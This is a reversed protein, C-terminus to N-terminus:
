QNRRSSLSNGSLNKLVERFAGNAADVAGRETKPDDTSFCDVVDGRANLANEINRMPVRGSALVVADTPLRVTVGDHIITAGTVRPFGHVSELSANWYTYTGPFPTSGIGSRLSVVRSAGSRLLHTCLHKALYGDGLVVPNRGPLVGSDLYHHVVSGPLVGAGRDGQIGLEARTAPRTGSALVLQDLQHQRAGEPGLTSLVGNSFEAALTGLNWSVGARTAERALQVTEPEPEQGGPEPLRDICLVSEGNKALLTAVRLGSRGM